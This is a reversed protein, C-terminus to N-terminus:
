YNWEVGIGLKSNGDSGAEGRAKIHKTIDLDIVVRSANTGVNQQVGVYLQDSLHSGASIAANGKKDTTVDLRDVGISKRLRDIVGPGSTLGGIRDIETALQAVQIASLRTLSKNFLLRALIEDEPLSPASTFVLKPASARGSLTATITVGDAESTAELDLVPDLQGVFGITGRTLALRRGLLTMSGRRLVFQGDTVPKASTGTLHLDGNLEADIGRGRVFFQGPSVVKLDISAAMAPVDRKENEGLGIAKRAEPALGVHQIDLDAVTRPLQEPITIDVRGLRLDGSVVPATALPGSIAIAGDVLGALMTKDDFRVGKAEVRLSAPFSREKDIVVRGKGAIRGGSRTLAELTDVEIADGTLRAALRVDKLRVGTADDKVTAGDLGLTGQLLPTAFPGTAALQLMVRGTGRTGREALSVLLLGLPVEGKIQLDLAQRHDVHIRGSIGLRLGDTGRLQGVTKITGDAFTGQAAIALPAVGAEATARSAADAWTLDYTVRPKRAPGAVVFRGGLKGTLGLEPAVVGVVSAPLAGIVAQLKIDGASATGSVAIRGGGANFELGDTHVTANEVVIKGPRSLRLSSGSWDATVDSAVIETATGRGRAAVAMSLGGKQARAVLRATMTGAVDRGVDLRASAVDVDGIQVGTVALQSTLKAKGLPEDLVGDIDLATIRYRDFRLSQARGTLKLVGRAETGGGSLKLSAKGAMAVGSLKSFDELAALDGMLVGNVRGDEGFGLGGKIRNRGYGLDVNTLQPRGSGDLRVEFSGGAKRGSHEVDIAVTAAPAALTGSLKATVASPALDQGRWRLAKGNLSIRGDLRGKQGAIRGKIGLGGALGTQTPALEAATIDFTVDPDGGGITGALKGSVGAGGLTGNKVTVAGAASVSVDAALRPSGALLPDINAQGVSANALTAAIHGSASFEDMLARGHAVVSLGGRLPRGALASFVALDGIEARADAELRQGRLKGKGTLNVGGVQVQLKDIFVGTTEVSGEATLIGPARVLPALAPDRAALGEVKLMARLDKLVMWQADFPKPQRATLDLVAHAMSGNQSSIGDIEAAVTVARDAAKAELKIHAKASKVAVTAGAMALQLTAGDARGLTASAEGHVFKRGLDAVGVVDLRLAGSALHGETVVIQDGDTRRGNLKATIPGMLVARVSAPALSAVDGTLSLSFGHGGDQRRLVVDGGLRAQAGADLALTGQWDDLTGDGNLAASVAPSDPLQAMTAFLGGAPESAVLDVKLRRGEPQYSLEALLAGARGDIRSVALRGAFGAARKMAQLNASAKLRASTGLADADLQIDDIRFAGVSIPIPRVATWDSRASKAATGAPTSPLRLVHVKAVLLEAIDVHGLLAAAARWRYSLGDLRLWVGKDDGITVSDIKGSSFLSGAFGSIEVRAAPSSAFNAITRLLLRQGGSTSVGALLLVIM